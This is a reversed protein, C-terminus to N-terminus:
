NESSLTSHHTDAAQVLRIPSLTPPLSRALRKESSARSAERPRGARCAHRLARSAHVHLPGYSYNLICAPPLIAQMATSAGLLVSQCLNQVHFTETKRCCAHMCKAPAPVNTQLLYCHQQTSPPPYTVIKKKFRTRHRDTGQHGRDRWASSVCLRREVVRLEM